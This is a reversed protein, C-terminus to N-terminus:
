QAYESLMEAYNGAKPGVNKQMFQAIKFDLEGLVTLHCQQAKVQKIIFGGLHLHARVVEGESAPM